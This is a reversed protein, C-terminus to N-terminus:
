GRIRRFSRPLLRIQEIGIGLRRTEQGLGVDSPARANLNRILLEIVGNGVDPPLDVVLEGSANSTSLSWEHLTRGECVCEVLRPAGPLPITRYRLGIRRRAKPALEPLRLRLVGDRQISWAGRREQEGWGTVLAYSGDGGRSFDLPEVGLLPPEASAPGANWVLKGQDPVLSTVLRVADSITRLGARAGDIVHLTEGLGRPHEGPAPLSPRNGKEPISVTEPDLHYREILDAIVRVTNEYRSPNDNVAAAVTRVLGLQSFV